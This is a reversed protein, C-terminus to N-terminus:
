SLAERVAELISEPGACAEAVTVVVTPPGGLPATEIRHRRVLQLAEELQSSADGVGDARLWRRLVHNHAAIVAAAEVEALLRETPSDDSPHKLLHKTFLRQYRSVVAHERERLVPVERLLRYRALSVAPDATYMRLVEHISRCVAAVPEAGRDAELMQEIRAVTADHDPFVADEKTPFYRFFTRRSVGAAAAIQDVTTAEYGKDAFLSLAAASLERRTRARGSVGAMDSSVVRRELGHQAPRKPSTEPFARPRRNLASVPINGSTRDVSKASATHCVGVDDVSTFM